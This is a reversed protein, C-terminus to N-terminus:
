GARQGLSSDIGQGAGNTIPSGALLEGPGRPWVAVLWVLSGVLLYMTLLKLLWDVTSPKLPLRDTVTGL